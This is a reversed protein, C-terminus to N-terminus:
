ERSRMRAGIGFSNVLAPTEVAGASDITTITTDEFLSYAGNLIVPGLTAEAADVPDAQVDPADTPSSASWRWTVGLLLGTQRVGYARWARGQALIWKTPPVNGTAIALIRDFDSGLDVYDIGDLALAALKYAGDLLGFVGVYRVTSQAQSLRIEMGGENAYNYAAGGFMREETLDLTGHVIDEVGGTSGVTMTGAGLAPVYVGLLKRMSQSGLVPTVGNLTVVEFQPELNSDLSLVYADMTDAANSSVLVITATPDVGLVNVTLTQGVPVQSASIVQVLDYSDATEVETTGALTVAEGQFAAGEETGFVLVDDTTAGDSQLRVTSPGALLYSPWFYVGSSQTGSSVVYLQLSTSEDVVRVAATQVSDITLGHVVTWTISGTVLAGAVIVFREFDPLGTVDNIGWVTATCNVAASFGDVEVVEGPTHVNQEDAELTPLSLQGSVSGPRTGDGQGDVRLRWEAWLADDFASLEMFDPADLTHPLDSHTAQLAGWDQPCFCAFLDDDYFDRPSDIRQGAALAAVDADSLAREFLWMDRADSEWTISGGDDLWKVGGSTPDALAGSAASNVKVGNVFLLLFSGDAVFAVHYWEGDTFGSTDFTVQTLGGGGTWVRGNLLTGARRFNFGRPNRDETACLLAIGGGSVWKVWMGVTFGSAITPQVAAQTFQPSTTDHQVYATYYFPADTGNVVAGDADFGGHPGAAAGLAFNRLDVPTLGADADFEVTAVTGTTAERLTVLDGDSFPAPDDVDFTTTGSTVTASTLTAYLPAHFEAELTSLPLIYQKLLRQLESPTFNPANDSVEVFLDEVLGEAEIFVPTEEPWTVELYWDAPTLQRVIEVNADCSLRRAEALVGDLTARMRMVDRGHNALVQLLANSECGGAFILRESIRQQHWPRQRQDAYGLRVTVDEFDVVARIAEPDNAGDRGTAAYYDSTSTSFTGYPQVDILWGDVALVVAEREVVYFDVIHPEYPDVRGRVGTNGLAGNLTGDSLVWSYELPNDRARVMVARILRHGNAIALYPGVRGRPDDAVFEDLKVTARIHIVTKAPTMPDAFTHTAEVPNVSQIIRLYERINGIRNVADTGSKTWVDKEDDLDNAGSYTATEAYLLGGTLSEYTEVMADAATHQLGVIARALASWRANWNDQVPVPMSYRARDVKWHPAVSANTAAEVEAWRAEAEVARISGFEFWPVTRQSEPAALYPLRYLLRGDAYVDWSTSERKVLRLSTEQAWPYGPVVTALTEGTNPDALILDDGAALALVREGDDIQLAHTPGAVPSPVNFGLRSGALYQFTAIEEATLVRDIWGYMHLGDVPWVRDGSLTAYQRGGFAFNRIDISAPLGTTYTKSASQLGSGDLSDYLAQVTITSGQRTLVVIAAAGDNGNDADVALEETETFTTFDISGPTAGSGIQMAWFGTGTYSISAYVQNNSPQSATPIIMVLSFDTITEAIPRVMVGDGDLTTAGRPMDSAVGNIAYDGDIFLPSRIPTMDVADTAYDTITTLQGSGNYVPGGSRGADWLSRLDPIAAEILSGPNIGASIGRFKAQLEMRDGPRPLMQPLDAPLGRRGYGEVDTTVLTVGQASVDITPSGVKTWPDWVTEPDVDGRLYAVHAPM